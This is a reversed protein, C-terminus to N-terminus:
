QGKIKEMEAQLATHADALGKEVSVEGNWIPQLKSNILPEIINFNTPAQLAKAGSLSEYFIKQNKPGSTAFEPMESVSKLAPINGGAKVMDLSPGPGSLAAAVAYAENPTKSKSSVGWGDTGAVTVIPGSKHPQYVLDYDTFKNTILGAIGWRGVTRMVLNGAIFQAQEDWGAPNPAVKEKLILDALFQTTEAIKPHNMNSDTMDDNLMGVVDNMYYWSGMGFMGAGWFSYAYRDKAGGTVDAVSKSITLFDDWTMKEPIKLGKDAAIKTNYYIVMNNWSFPIELLKGKYRLMDTLAPAIDEKVMKDTTPDAALFPTLDTLISKVGLLAIGEIAINLVDLQEGGAIMTVVKDAYQAWNDMQTQFIDLTINKGALSETLTDAFGKVQDQPMAATARIKVATKAPAATAPAQTSDPATTPAAAPAAAPSCATVLAGVSVGGALKLFDRRRINQIVNKESM